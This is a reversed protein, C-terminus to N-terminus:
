PTEKRAWGVHEGHEILDCLLEIYRNMPLTPNPFKSAHQLFALVDAREDETTRVPTETV